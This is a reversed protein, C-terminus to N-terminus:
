CTRWLCPLLRTTTEEDFWYGLFNFNRTSSWSPDYSFVSCLTATEHWSMRCNAQSLIPRVPLPSSTLLIRFCRGVQTFLFLFIRGGSACTEYGLCFCLLRPCYHATAAHPPSQGLSSSPSLSSPYHEGSNVIGKSGRLGSMYRNLKWWLYTAWMDTECIKKSRTGSCVTLKCGM